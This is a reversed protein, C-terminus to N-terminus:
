HRGLFGVLESSVEDPFDEYVRVVVRRVNDNETDQIEVEVEWEKDGLRISERSTGESPFNEASRPMMRLRTMHNEALWWSEVRTEVRSSQQLALSINKMLAVSVLSFVFLAIMIEILTFGSRVRIRM